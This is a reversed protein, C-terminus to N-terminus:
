VVRQPWLVLDQLWCCPAFFSTSVSEPCERVPVCHIPAYFPSLGMFIMQMDHLPTCVCCPQADKHLGSM